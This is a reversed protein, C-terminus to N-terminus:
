GERSVSNSDCPSKIIYMLCRFLFFCSMFLGKTDKVSAKVQLSSPRQGKKKSWPTESCHMLTKFIQNIGLDENSMVEVVM